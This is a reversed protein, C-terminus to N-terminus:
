LAKKVPPDTHIVSPRKRDQSGYGEFKKKSKAVPTVDDYLISTDGKIKIRDDEDGEDLRFAVRRQPSITINEREGEDTMSSDSGNAPPRTYVHKGSRRKDTM